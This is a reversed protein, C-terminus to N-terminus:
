RRGFQKEEEEQSDIVMARIMIMLSNREKVTVDQGFLFNLIPIKSFGPLGSYQHVSSYATLGGLLITGNDPVTVTTRIQRIELEPAEINLSRIEQDNVGGLAGSVDIQRFDTVEAQTPKLELTIFKRDASVVPRVEFSTGERITGIEPDLAAGQVAGVQASVDKVYTKEKIVVMYARQTNFMKLHPAQVISGKRTMHIARLILSAQWDNIFSFQLLNAASDVNTQRTQGGLSFNTGLYSNSGSTFRVDNTKGPENLIGSSNTTGFVPRGALGQWSIGLDDVLDNQVRLFRAHVDVLLSQQSRLGQLVEMVKNQLEIPAKVGIQQTEEVPTIEGEAEAIEPVHAKIIEVIKDLSLGEEEKEEEDGEFPGATSSAFGAAPAKFDVLKLLLDKVDVFRTQMEGRVGAADSIFVGGYKLTWKLELADTLEDLKQELPIKELEDEFKTITRDKYDGAIKPDLKVPIEISRSLEDVIQGLSMNSYDFKGPPKSLRERLAKKWPEEDVVLGQGRSERYARVSLWNEPFEVRVEPDFPRRIEEMYHEMQRMAYEQEIRNQTSRQDSNAARSRRKLDIADLNGRDNELVQDALRIAYEYQQGQFAEEADSLIKEVRQRALVKHEEEAQRILRGAEEQKRKNEEVRIKEHSTRAEKLATEVRHLKADRTPVEMPLFRVLDHVREYIQIAKEFWGAKVAKDGEEIGRDIEFLQMDLQAGHRKSLDELANGFRDTSVDLIANVKRLHAPAEAHGLDTSKQFEAQAQILRGEKYHEMGAEFHIQSRLAMEEQAAARKERTEQLREEWREPEEGTPAEPAALATAWTVCFIGKLIGRVGPWRDTM